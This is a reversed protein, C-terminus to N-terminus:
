LIVVSPVHMFLVDQLWGFTTILGPVPFGLAWLCPISHTVSSSSPLISKKDMFYHHYQSINTNICLKDPVKMHTHMGPTKGRFCNYYQSVYTVICLKDPVKMAVMDEADLLAPIDLEEHGVDFAQFM